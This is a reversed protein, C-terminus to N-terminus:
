TPDGKKTPTARHRPHRALCLLAERIPELRKAIGDGDPTHAMELMTLAETLRVLPTWYDPGRQRFRTM